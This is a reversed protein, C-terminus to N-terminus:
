EEWVEALPIVLGPFMSPRVDDNNRGAADERYTGATNDLLLCRLTLDFANLLWYNPV